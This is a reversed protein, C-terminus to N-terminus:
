CEPSYEANLMRSYEANLAPTPPATYLPVGLWYRIPLLLVGPGSPSSGSWHPLHFVMSGIVLMPCPLCFPRPVPPHHLQSFNLHQFLAEDITTSQSGQHLPMDTDELCLWDSRSAFISLVAVISDSHPSPDLEQSLISEIVTQPTSSPFVGSASGVVDAPSHLRLGHGGLGHVRGYHIGFSRQQWM